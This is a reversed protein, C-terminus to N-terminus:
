SSLGPWTLHTSAQMLHESIAPNSAADLATWALAVAGDLMAQHAEETDSQAAFEVSRNPATGGIGITPHISPILSSVNGLDTCYEMDVPAGDLFRGPTARGPFFGRVVRASLPFFQRLGAQVRPDRERLRGLAQSNKRFTSTLLADHRMEANPAFETVQVSVGASSAAEEFCRRVSERAALVGALTPAGWFIDARAGRGQMEPKVICFHLAQNQQAITARLLEDLRQAEDPGIAQGGRADESFVARCRLGAMSPLVMNFPTPGPHVMLAAHVGKFIGAELLAVKGAKTHGAPPEKLGLLEEGPTGIVSVKLGVAGAIDRLGTGAAVAAAAILNHGCAHICPAAGDPPKEEYALFDTALADYEALFAIHLPGRGVSAVFPTSLGLVGQRVNFGEGALEETIRKVAYTESFALEPHQHIDHALHVYRDRNALIRARVADKNTTM